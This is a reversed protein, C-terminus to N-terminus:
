LSGFSVWPINLSMCQFCFVILFVTYFIFVSCCADASSRQHKPLTLERARCAVGQMNSRDFIHYSMCSIDHSLADRFVPSTM